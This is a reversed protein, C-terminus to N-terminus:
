KVFPTKKPSSLTIVQYRIQQNLSPSSSQNVPCAMSRRRPRCQPGEWLPEWLSQVKQPISSLPNPTRKHRWMPRTSEQNMVVDPNLCDPCRRHIQFTTRGANCRIIPTTCAPTGAGYWGCSLRLTELLATSIIFPRPSSILAGLGSPRQLWVMLPQWPQETTLISQSRLASSYTKRPWRVRRHGEHIGRAPKLTPKRHHLSLM